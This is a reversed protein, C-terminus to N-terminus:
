ARCSFPKRYLTFVRVILDPSDASTQGPMLEQTIDPWSPNCTLTIFLNFGGFHRAIVVVAQFRQNM